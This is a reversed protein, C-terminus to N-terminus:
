RNRKSHRKVPESDTWEQTLAKLSSYRKWDRPAAGCWEVIIGGREFASPSIRVEYTEGYKLGYTDNDTGIYKLYLGSGIKDMGVM